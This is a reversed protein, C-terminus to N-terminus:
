QAPVLYVPHGMHQNSYEWGALGFRVTLLVAALPALLALMRRRVPAPVGWVAFAIVLMGAPVLFSVMAQVTPDVDWPNSLYSETGSVALLLVTGGGVVLLRTRGLVTVAARRPAPVTLAVACCVELLTQTLMQLVTVPEQAYRSPLAVLEVLVAPWALLPALRRPGALVALVTLTWLGARTWLAPDPYWVIDDPAARGLAWAAQRVLPLAHLYSLLVAALLGATAAAGSWSRDVVARSAHGLRTRIATLALNAADAPAPWRQGPRSDALLVGLMEEEYARRHEWPYCALLRRYRRELAPHHQSEDGTM